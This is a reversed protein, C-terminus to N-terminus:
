SLRFPSAVSPNVDALNDVLRDIDDLPVAKSGITREATTTFHRNLEDLDIRLPSPCPSPKLIRHIVRWVERSKNSSLAKETFSKRASRIVYKLKNRVLRYATWTCDGADPKHAEARLVDREKQLNEIEPTEMWPAPPRTIRTRRLPVHRELCESFIQHLTDVQELSNTLIM